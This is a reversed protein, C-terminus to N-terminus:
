VLAAKVHCDELIAQRCSTGPIHMAFCPLASRAREEEASADVAPAAVPVETSVPEQIGVLWLEHRYQEKIM